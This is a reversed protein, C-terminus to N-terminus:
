RGRIERIFEHLRMMDFGLDACLSIRESSFNLPFSGSLLMLDTHNHLRVAYDRGLANTLYDIAREHWENARDVLNDEERSKDKCWEHLSQAEVLLDGLMSAVTGSSVSPAPSLTDEGFAGNVDGEAGGGHDSEIEQRRQEFAGDM